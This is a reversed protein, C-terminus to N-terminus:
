IMKLLELYKWYFVYNGLQVSARYMFLFICLVVVVVKAINSVTKNKQRVIANGLVISIVPTFYISAREMITLKYRLLYLCLGVVLMLIELESEEIYSKDWTWILYCLILTAIYVTIPILGALPNGTYAMGYNRGLLSNTFELIKDVTLFLFGTFVAAYILIKKTLRISRILYIGVFIWATTHIFAALAIVALSAVDWMPKRKKVFELAIFCLSIAIGQRFGTLFFQWPGLCIYIIVSLFVNEANRYIYWFMIGTCFAAEFYVIFFNWPILWALVENLLLYGYEMEYEEVLVSLPDMLARGYCSYYVYLDISGSLHPSRSGAVFVVILFSIGLFILNKKKKGIGDPILFHIGIIGFLMFLWVWM